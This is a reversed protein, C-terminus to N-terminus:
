FDKRRENSDSNAIMHSAEDLCMIAAFIRRLHPEFNPALSAMM